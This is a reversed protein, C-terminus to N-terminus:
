QKHPQHPWEGIHDGAQCAATATAISGHGCSVGPLGGNIETVAQGELTFFLLIKPFMSRASRSMSSDPTTMTRPCTLTQASASGTHPLAWFIQAAVDQPGSRRSFAAQDTAAVTSSQAHIHICRAFVTLIAAIVGRPDIKLV